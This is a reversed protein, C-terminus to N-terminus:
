AKRPNSKKFALMRKFYNLVSDADKEQAAVNYKLQSEDTKIWAPVTEDTWPMMRRANDRSFFNQIAFFEDDSTKGKNKYANKVQVDDFDSIDHFENNILGLEQGEYLFVVGSLLFLMTSLMTASEYRKTEDGFRTVIRPSDHNEWFLAYLLDNETVNKQWKSLAAAM